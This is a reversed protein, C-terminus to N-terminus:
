KTKQNDAAFRSLFKGNIKRVNGFSAPNKTPRIYTLTDGPAVYSFANKNDNIMKTDYTFMRYAYSDKIGKVCLTDNDCDTVVGTDRKFEPSMAMGLFFMYVAMQLVFFMYKDKQEASVVTPYKPASNNNKKDQKIM